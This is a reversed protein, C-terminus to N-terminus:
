DEDSKYSGDLFGSYEVEAYALADEESKFYGILDFEPAEVWYLPGFNMINISFEGDWAVGTLDNIVEANEVVYENIIDEFDGEIKNYAIGEDFQKLIRDYIEKDLFEELQQQVSEMEILESYFLEIPECNSKPKAQSTQSNQIDPKIIRATFHSVKYINDAESFEVCLEFKQGTDTSGGRNKYGWVLQAKWEPQGWLKQVEERTMGQKIGDISFFEPEELYENGYADAIPASVWGVIGNNGVYFSAKTNRFWVYARHEDKAIGDYYGIHEYLNRADKGMFEALYFLQKKFNTEM